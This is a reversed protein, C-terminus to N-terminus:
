KVCCHKAYGHGSNSGVVNKTFFLIFQLGKCNSSSFPSDYEMWAANYGVINSHQLSALAKVERLLQLLFKLVFNLICVTLVNSNILIEVHLPNTGPRYWLKPISKIGLVIGLLISEIGLVIGLLISKIGLVRWLASM